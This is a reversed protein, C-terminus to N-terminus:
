FQYFTDNLYKIVHHVEDNSWATNSGKACHEVRIHLAKYSSIISDKRQYVLTGDGGTMRAHCDTCNTQHLTEGQNAFLTIPSLCIIVFVLIPLYLTYTKM